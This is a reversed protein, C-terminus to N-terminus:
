SGIRNKLDAIWIQVSKDDPVEKQYKEYQELACELDRIYLDCLIGLNKIVPLYDPNKTLANTYAKRADDFRGLKRYLLGLENNAVPHALDIDLAKMLYEEAQKDDDKYRYAMALNIYPAPLRQEKEIVSNLLAIAKDYEQDNLSQVARDFEQQVDNDVVIDKIDSEASNKTPEIACANLLISVLIVYLPLVLLKILRM